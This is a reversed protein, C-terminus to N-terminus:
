DQPGPASSAHNWTPPVPRYPSDRQFNDQDAVTVTLQPKGCIEHIARKDVHHKRILLAIPTERSRPKGPREVVQECVQTKPDKPGQSALLDVTVRQQNWATGM